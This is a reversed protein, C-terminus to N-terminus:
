HGLLIVDGEDDDVYSLQRRGVAIQLTDTEPIPQNSECAQGPM